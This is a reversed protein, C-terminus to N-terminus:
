ASLRCLSESRAALQTAGEGIAGGILIVAPSAINESAARAAIEGLTACVRRERSTGAWQVVAAPTDIPLTKGLAESIGEIRSAGMYIALTMGTAALTPWDPESGDRLHATVFIVGQCHDRHTLSVGLGAAAAFGSSIGNVIDVDIGASRLDAIEEGARGFLLADGGKIRVVHRGQLAYRRMLRQIFAQPTSKCGGRKGVKIVRAHAAKLTTIEDNVLDDILLVDAAAIAKAARFTLLDLDGPGASVLTVKGTNM